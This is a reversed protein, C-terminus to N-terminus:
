DAFRVGLYVSRPVEATTSAELHADDLLNQGRVFLELEPRVRWTFGVDARVYSGIQLAELDDVYYLATDLRLTASLDAFSLLQAMHHPSTADPADVPTGKSSVSIYSYAARLRWGPHVRWDAAVELGASHASAANAITLETPTGATSVLHDYDNFFTAIDLTVASGLLTRYGLEYAMLTESDLDPNGTFSVVGPVVFFLDEELRSPTRVPRSVALWLTRRDDPTLWLRAGPQVELGTFDNHELKAGFMAFLRQPRLTLTDQAFGSLTSGSRSLPDLVITNTPSVSQTDDSSHRLGLGWILDHAAGAEFYRRYDVDVTDREVAFGGVERNTHDYYAQLSSGDRQQDGGVLRAILHRGSADQGDPFRGSEYLAGQVTLVRQAEMDVDVSFGGRGMSWGDGADGGTVLEFDDHDFYKGWVRYWTHEGAKGGYRAEAFAREYSGGGGGIYLGQTDRASRTTVNVVGNVANAGWLTAGPGRVVEIRDLDELLTDQVDWFTGSFLLDYTTRGNIQVLQKNGFGGNFGRTGISWSHSDVQGVFVGPVLRLAEPISRHGSRRLEEADIVTLATPTQLLQQEVGAVSTVSVQLLEEITLEAYEEQARLAAAAVCLAAFACVTPM